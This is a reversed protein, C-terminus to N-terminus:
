PAPPCAAGDPGAYLDTGVCALLLIAGPMPVADGLLRITSQTDAPCTDFFTPDLTCDRDIFCFGDPTENTRNQCDRMADDTVQPLECVCSRATM